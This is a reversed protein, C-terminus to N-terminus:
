DCGLCWFARYERLVLSSALPLRAAMPYQLLELCPSQIWVNRSKLGSKVVKGTLESPLFAIYCGGAPLSKSCCITKKGVPRCTPPAVRGWAEPCSFSVIPNLEPNLNARSVKPMIRPYAVVWIVNKEHFMALVWLVLGSWVLVLIRQKHWEGVKWHDFCSVHGLESDISCLSINCM